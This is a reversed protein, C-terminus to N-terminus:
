PVCWTGDDRKELPLPVVTPESGGISIRLEVVGTDGSLEPEGVIEATTNEGIEVPTDAGAPECSVRNMAELDGSGLAEVAQEAIGRAATVDEETAPEAAAETDRPPPEAGSTTTQTTQQDGGAADQEDDGRTLLFTVVGAVALVAVIAVVIVVVRRRDAPTTEQDREQETM